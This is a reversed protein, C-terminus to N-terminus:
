VYWGFWKHLWVAIKLWTWSKFGIKYEKENKFWMYTGDEENYLTLEYEKESPIPLIYNCLGKWKKLM